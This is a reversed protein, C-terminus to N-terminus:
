NKRGKIKEIKKKARRAHKDGHKKEFKENKKAIVALEREGKRNRYTREPALFYFIILL